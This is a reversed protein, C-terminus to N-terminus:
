DIKAEIAAHGPRLLLTHRRQAFISRSCTGFVFRHLSFNIESKITHCINVIRMRFSVFMKNRYPKSYTSPPPFWHTGRSSSLSSSALLHFSNKLLVHSIYHLIGDYTHVRRANHITTHSSSSSSPLWFHTNTQASQLEIYIHLSQAHWCMLALFFIFIFSIHIRTYARNSTHM